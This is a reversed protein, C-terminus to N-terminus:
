NKVIKQSFVRDDTSVQVIYIGSKFDSLDINSSYTEPSSQFLTKGDISFLQVKQIRNASELYLNGNVPNPYIKISSKTANPSYSTALDKFAPLEKDSYLRYEGPNLTFSMTSSNVTLNAGSFFEHWTGTHQFQVSLQQSTVGFNGILTINHDNLTLQVSKAEGSLSLTEKGSTFVDFQSRLRLMASYVDFLKQRRPDDLYDWRIPKPDTRCSSNTTGNECQNISYNYGLEGFQWIMKPGTLTMFFTTSLKSRNLATELEKTNYSGSSNGYTTTKFMQREEDHSEMYAVLGPKTFGRKQYSAWSFDSKGSDHYGMSAECFNYNANGWILM